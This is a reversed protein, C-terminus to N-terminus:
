TESRLGFSVYNSAWLGNNHTLVVCIQTTQVCLQNQPTVWKGFVALTCSVLSAVHYTSIYTQRHASFLNDYTWAVIGYFTQYLTVCGLQLAHSLVSKQQLEREKALHLRNM